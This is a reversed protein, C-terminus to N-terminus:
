SARFQSRSGRSLAGVPSHDVHTSARTLAAKCYFCQGHQMKMLAPRVMSLATRENGFLFSNLDAVEGLIDLNQLRVHRVWAGRVLDVILAHFKRFCFAVGSRLEIPGGRDVNGGLFDLREKGVMQLKWLM